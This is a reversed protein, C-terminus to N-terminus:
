IKDLQFNSNQPILFEQQNKLDELYSNNSLFPNLSKQSILERDNLKNYNKERSSSNNIFSNGEQLVLEMIDNGIIKHKNKLLSVEKKESDIKRWSSFIYENSIDM